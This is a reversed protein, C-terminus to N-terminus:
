HTENKGTYSADIKSLRVKAGPEVVFKKRYDMTFAGMVIVRAASATPQRHAHEKGAPRDPLRRLAREATSRRRARVDLRHLLAVGARHTDLPHVPRALRLRVDAGGPDPDDRDRQIAPAGPIAAPLVLTREQHHVAVLPRGGGTAPVDGDAAPGREGARFVG